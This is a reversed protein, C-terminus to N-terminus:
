SQKFVINKVRAKYFPFYDDTDIFNGGDVRTPLKYGDFEKYDSLTGGFPQIQFKKEPNANSWRPMVVKTAQGKEDITIDVSQEMGAERVTVRTTNEDIDQWKAGFQPLLAAPTWFVSEAVVRAFASRLHDDNDGARVVPIVLGFWFRTWSILGNNKDSVYGDSGSIQFVGKGMTVAWIMGHPLALIQKAKMPAYNPKEKTGISLEGGMTIIATDYLVADNQITYLFYRRAVDPLADIMGPSFKGGSKARDEISQWIKRREWIDGYRWIQMLIILSLLVILIISLM